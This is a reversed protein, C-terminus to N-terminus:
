FHGFEIMNAGSHVIATVENQEFYWGDDKYWFLEILNM